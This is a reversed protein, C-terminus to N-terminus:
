MLSAQAAKSYSTISHIIAPPPQLLLGDLERKLFDYFLEDDTDLRVAEQELKRIIGQTSSKPTYTKTM